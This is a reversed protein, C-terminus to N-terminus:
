KKLLSIVLAAIAGIVGAIITTAIWAGTMKSRWGAHSKVEIEILTIRGTHDNIRKEQADFKEVLGSVLGHTEILLEDRQSENV